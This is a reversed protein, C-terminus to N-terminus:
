KRNKVLLWLLVSAAVLLLVITFWTTSETSFENPPSLHPKGETKATGVYRWAKKTQPDIWEYGAPPQGSANHWESPTLKGSLRKKLREPRSANIWPIEADPHTLIEEIIQIDSAEGETELLECIAHCMRVPTKFKNERWIERAAEIFPRHDFTPYRDLESLLNESAGKTWSSDDKVIKLLIRGADEGRRPIDDAFAQVWEKTIKEAGLVVIYGAILRPDDNPMKVIESVDHPFGYNYWRVGGLYALDKLTPEQALGTIGCSLGVLSALLSTFRSITHM